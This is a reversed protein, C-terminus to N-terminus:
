PVRLNMVTKALARWQDWDQAVNIWYVGDREIERLDMKINGLWRRRPGGTTEKKRAKGGIDWICEV